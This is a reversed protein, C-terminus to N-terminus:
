PLSVHSGLGFLIIVFDERYCARGRRLLNLGGVALSRELPMRVPIWLFLFVGFRFEPLARLGVAHEGVLVLAGSIVTVAMRAKGAHTCFASEVARDEFLKLINEAVEESELIHKSAALAAPAATRARLAAGVQAIVHPQAEFFRGGAHRRLDPNRPLLKAFGAI